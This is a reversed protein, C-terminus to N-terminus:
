ATCGSTTPTKSCTAGSAATPAPRTSCCWRSTARGRKRSTSATSCARSRSTCTAASPPTSTATSMPCRGCPCRDTSAVGAARRRIGPHGCFYPGVTTVLDGDIAVAEPGRMGTAVKDLRPPPIPQLLQEWSRAPGHVRADFGDPVGATGGGDGVGAREFSRVAGDDVELVYREDGVDVAVRATWYRAALRFAPNANALRVVAGTDLTAM